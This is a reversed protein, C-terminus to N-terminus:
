VPFISALSPKHYRDNEAHSEGLRRWGESNQIDKQVLAEFALIADGLEGKDFLEIGKELLNPHDMFPNEEQFM